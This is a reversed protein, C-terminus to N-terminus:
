DDRGYHPLANLYDELNAPNKVYNDHWDGPVPMEAYLRGREAELLRRDQGMFDAACYVKKGVAAALEELWIIGEQSRMLHHDLIVVDICQALRLANNWTCEREDRSLRNLYLPPGSALLITPQWEIIQNVTPDDLLQIDSAHVFVQHGKEIRTMMLTGM